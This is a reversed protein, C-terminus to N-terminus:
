KIWRRLCIPFPQRAAGWGLGFNLFFIKTSVIVDFTKHSKSKPQFRDSLNTM